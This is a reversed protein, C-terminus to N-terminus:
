RVVRELRMTVQMCAYLSKDIRSIKWDDEIMKSITKKKGPFPLVNLIFSWKSKGLIGHMASVRFRSGIKELAKKDFPWEWDKDSQFPRYLTRAIKVPLSTQLPDYTVIIGDPKLVEEIRDFLQNLDPFHHIVGYAYIIDFNREKFDDSYFDVAYAVAHTCDNKQLKKKLKEIAVDSLDIGVYSAANKAMYISLANGRFCGLDLVKKNKLDGMWTKHENYVQEKIGSNDRFDSLVKDRLYSWLNTVKNKSKDPQNYFERQRINVKITDDKSISQM